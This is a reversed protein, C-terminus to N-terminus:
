IDIQEVTPRAGDILTNILNALGLPLDTPRTSAGFVRLENPRPQWPTNGQRWSTNRWSKPQDAYTLYAAINDAATLYCIAQLEEDNEDLGRWEAIRVGRFVIDRFVDNRATRVRVEGLSHDTTSRPPTAHSATSIYLQLAKVITSSLKSGSIRQASELLPMDDGSIYITKAPM